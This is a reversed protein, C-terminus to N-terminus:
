SVNEYKARRDAVWRELHSRPSSDHQRAFEELLEKEKRSLKQPIEIEVKVLLDGHGGRQTPAGKGKVRLTKGARTGAPVKVTVVDDLTPVQVKAGLAAEAITVPVRVTLDGKGDHSFFPHPTVNVHVYLDGPESGAPGPGGKRAVKIRAGNRVGPPVRVKTGDALEFVTGELAEEFSLNAETEIDQGRRPRPRFGFMEDFLNGVDGGFIDGIDGVHVRGGGPRFGFPNGAGTSAYTRIQDYEKRKEDNSLVSYAESVEKFRREADKDGKNADPHFQQALKRYARKVEDKSAKDSVGLVKYYDKEFWDRQAM